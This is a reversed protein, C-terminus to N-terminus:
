AEYRFIGTLYRKWLPYLNETCSLRNHAHHFFLDRGVYVGCHNNVNSYMKFVLLDGIQLSEVRKFGWLKLESDSMYDLGKEWWDDEFAMRPKININNTKYYDRAAEFCDYKGFKYQRGELPVTKIVPNIINLEMGPYSYIHFPIQLSNCSDIDSQSAINSGDPHNHVIATIKNQRALKIYEDSSIIFNSDDLAVNTCPYYKNNAIVGCAERPYEHEFHNLIDNIM